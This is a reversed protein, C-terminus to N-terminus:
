VLRNSLTLTNFQAGPLQIHNLQFNSELRFRKLRNFNLGGGLSGRTGSYYDAISLMVQGSIPKSPNTSLWSFFSYGQYVKEPIEIGPRMEWNYPLFEYKKELNLSFRASSQFEISYSLGINRDYLKQRHNSLYSARISYSFKRVAAFRRSRPTFSFSGSTLRIDTRRVFGMEANFNPEVDLYSLSARYRDSRYDLSFNGMSSQSNDEDSTHTGAILTNFSLTPTLALRSDLGYVQNNRSNQSVVKNTLIMGVSSRTFIDRKLRLVGFNTSPITTKEDDAGYSTRRTQMNLLGITTKGSKGTLKIGGWLPIQHGNEIGIRRSYFLIPTSGGGGGHRRFFHRGSRGTSFIEAGELFFDRKEPFYLSFRTLNVQEQDAEVQAFDTNFTLDTVINSTINIKADLGIDNIRDLNFQTQLDRQIGGILFPQLELNGGMRLGHLPGLHGAKSLRFISFSGFERPIHNWDLKENKRRITRGFNVGFYIDDGEVFRLTKWPIAVEAFWGENNITAQCQWIGDWDPNYNRGEDSLRADRKNGYPNIVFYFGSRQDHYTDLIIEFFDDNDMRMDRRLETRIIRDPESDYCRIGFYLNKADYLCGIETRETPPAGDGPERQQFDDSFTALKWAPDDLKGDIVIQLDTQIAPMVKEAALHKSDINSAFISCVVLLLMSNVLLFARLKM